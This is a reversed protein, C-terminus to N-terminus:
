VLDQDSEVQAASADDIGDIVDEAPVAEGEAVPADDVVPVAEAAVVQPAPAQAAPAGAEAPSVDAMYENYDNMLAAKFQKMIEVIEDDTKNSPIAIRLLGGNYIVKWEQRLGAVEAKDAYADRVKAAFAQVGMEDPKRSYVELCMNVTKAASQVCFRVGENYAKMKRIPDLFVYNEKRDSEKIPWGTAAAFKSAVSQLLADRGAKDLKFVKSM